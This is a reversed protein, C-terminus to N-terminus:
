LSGCEYLRFRSLAERKVSHKRLSSRDVVLSLIHTLAVPLWCYVSSHTYHTKAETHLNTFQWGGNCIWFVEESVRYRHSLLWGLPLTCPPPSKNTFHYSVRAKFWYPCAGSNAASFSPAKQSSPQAHSRAHVPLHPRCRGAAQSHGQIDRGFLWLELLTATSSILVSTFWCAWYFSACHSKWTKPTQKLCKGKM